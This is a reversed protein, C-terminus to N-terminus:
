GEGEAGLAAAVECGTAHGVQVPVASREHEEDPHIGGCLPCAKVPLHGQPVRIYENGSWELERLVARAEDRERRAEALGTELAEVRAVASEAARLTEANADLADRAEDRGAEARVLEAKVRDCEERQRVIAKASEIRRRVVEEPSALAEYSGDARYFRLSESRLREVEAEAATARATLRDAEARHNWSRRAAAETDCIPGRAKCTPCIVHHLAMDSVEPWEWEHGLTPSAGECFPCPELPIPDPM